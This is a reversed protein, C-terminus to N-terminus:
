RLLLFSFTLPGIEQPFLLDPIPKIKINPIVMLNNKGHPFVNLQVFVFFIFYPLVINATEYEYSTKKLDM